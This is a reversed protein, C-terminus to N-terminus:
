KVIEGVMFRYVFCRDEKELKKELFLERKFYQEYDSPIQQNSSFQRLCFRAGPKATRYIQSILRHFSAQNLYSAIDSLSYRDYYNDPTNELHDLINETKVVLRDLRRRIMESEVRNLYPPFASPEVYGRFMLSFLLNDKALSYNLSDIMRGYIYSGLSLGPDSHLYLGPDIAFFRSVHRNLIIDFSKRFLPTDWEKLYKKQDELNKMEFIKKTKLPRVLSFFRAIM